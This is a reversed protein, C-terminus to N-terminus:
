IAPETVLTQGKRSRHHPAGAGRAQVNLELRNAEASRAPSGGAVIACMAVSLAQVRARFRTM